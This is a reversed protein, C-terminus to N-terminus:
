KVWVGVVKGRKGDMGQSDVEGYGWGCWAAEKGSGCAEGGM